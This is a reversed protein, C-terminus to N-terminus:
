VMGSKARAQDLDAPTNINFFIEAEEAYPAIDAPPLIRADLSAVFREMRLEGRMLFPPILPAIRAAYVAHLPQLGYGDRPVVADAPGLMHALHRILATSIFPMDCGCVFVAPTPANLLAAHLGGLAGHGPVADPVVAIGRERYPEPDNAVVMVHGCTEALRDLIRDIVPAGGVTVLAKNVHGMRRAKGGALVAGTLGAM